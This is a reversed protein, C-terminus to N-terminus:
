SDDSIGLSEGEEQGSIVEIHLEKLLESLSPMFSSCSNHAWYLTAQTVIKVGGIKSAAAIVNIARKDCRELIRALKAPVDMTFGSITDPYGWREEFFETTPFLTDDWDFIVLTTDNCENMINNNDAANM